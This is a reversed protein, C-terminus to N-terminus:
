VDDVKSALMDATHTWLVNPFRRIAEDFDKWDDTEYAGMHFRICAVEEETLDLFSSLIKVSKAGHELLEREQNTLWAKKNDDYVYQDCKCLDHFMGVIFPSQPRQWVLANRETLDKLRLYVQRSHDFLGGPYAGHFRTSAPAEFFGGTYVLKHAKTYHGTSALFLELKVNQFGAKRALNLYSLKRDETNEM